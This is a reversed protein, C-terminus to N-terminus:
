KEQKSLQAKGSHGPCYLLGRVLQGQFFDSHMSAMLRLPLQCCYKASQQHDLLPKVGACRWIWKYFIM